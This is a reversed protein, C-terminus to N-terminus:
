GPAFSGFPAPQGEDQAIKNSVRMGGDQRNSKLKALKSGAAKHIRAHTDKDIHGQNLLHTASAMALAHQRPHVVEDQRIQSSANPPSSAYGAPPQPM